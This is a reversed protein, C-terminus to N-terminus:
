QPLGAECLLDVFRDLTAPNKAPLRARIAAPSPQRELRFGAELATRAPGIQANAAYAAALQYRAMPNEPALRVAEIAARLAGTYEADVWCAWFEATLWLPLLSDNPSLRRALSFSDHAAVTDETYAFVLSQLGLAPAFNPYQSIARDIAAQAQSWKSATFWAFALACHGWPDADDAAVARLGHRTIVHETQASSESWGYCAEILHSCALDSAGCAIEPELSLARAFQTRARGLNDPSLRWMLGRGRMLCEIAASGPLPRAGAAHGSMAARQPAIAAVSGAALGACVTALEALEFEDRHRGIQQDAIVDLLRATVEGRNGSKHVNGEVLYQVGLERAINRIDNNRDQYVFSSNRSIVFLWAHRGLETIVSEAVYEGLCSREADNDLNEFPLVAISPKDPLSLGPRSIPLVDRAPIVAQPELEVQYLQTPNDLGQLMQEGLNRYVFPFYAPLTERVAGQIIIGGPAALKQLRRALGLCTGSVSNEDSIVEGLAIGIRVSPRVDDTLRAIFDNQASQFALAACLAESACDFEGVLADGRLERTLGGYEAIIQALGKYCGQIRQHALAQKRQVLIESDAVEAYVLVALKRTPVQPM